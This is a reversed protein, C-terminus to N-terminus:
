LGEILLSGNFFWTYNPYFIIVSSYQSLQRESFLFIYIEFKVEETGIKETVTVYKNDSAYVHSMKM